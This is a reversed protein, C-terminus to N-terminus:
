GLPANHSIGGGWAAVAALLLLVAPALTAARSSWPRTRRHSGAAAPHVAGTAPPLALVAVLPVM